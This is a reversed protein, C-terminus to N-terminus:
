CKVVTIGNSEQKEWPKQKTQPRCDLIVLYAPAEPHSYDRYFRIQGQGEELVTKPIDYSHILKIEIIFWKKEYEVAMDMRGRGAASEREMQGGGMTSKCWWNVELSDLFDQLLDDNGYM